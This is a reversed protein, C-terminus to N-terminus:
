SRSVCGLLVVRVDYGSLSTGLPWRIDHAAPCCGGIGAANLGAPQKFLLLLRSPQPLSTGGLLLKKVFAMCSMEVVCVDWSSSSSMNRGM